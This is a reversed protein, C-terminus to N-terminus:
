NESRISVSNSLKLLSEVGAPSLIFQLALVAAGLIGARENQQSSEVRLSRTALPLVRLYIASRIGALFDENLDAFPGGIVIASPNYFSVAAALVKGISKSAERVEKRAYINGEAALRRVDRSTLAEAIGLQRLKRAMADGGAVAELCGTNGCSCIAGESEPVQIHGIDGASGQEGRHLKGNSVIGCGIGTSIKVFLVHRDHEARAWYEGLAALNVDNDVLTKAAYRQSFFAPVEYGDWGPMIPPRVVTGTSHDVPGPVGIGIARVDASSKGADILLEQFVADMVSLISEPGDAIRIDYTRSALVSASLDTVAVSCHTGGLDGALLVGAGSNLRLQGAPRGGTSVGIEEVILGTDILGDLRQSVTGRSLGAVDVLFSRTCGPARAIAELLVSSLRDSSSAAVTRRTGPVERLISM